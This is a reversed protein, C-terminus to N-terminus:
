YLVTRVFDTDFGLRAYFARLILAKANISRGSRLLSQRRVGCIKTLREIHIVPLHPMFAGNRWKM